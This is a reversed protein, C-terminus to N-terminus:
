EPTMLTAILAVLASSIFIGWLFGGEIEKLEEKKLEVLNEM